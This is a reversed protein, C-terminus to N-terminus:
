KDVIVNQSRLSKLFSICVLSINELIICNFKLLFSTAPRTNIFKDLNHDEKPLMATVLFRKYHFISKIEPVKIYGHLITEEFGLIELLGPPLAAILPSLWLYLIGSSIVVNLISYGKICSVTQLLSPPNFSGERRGGMGEYSFSCNTARFIKYNPVVSPFYNM